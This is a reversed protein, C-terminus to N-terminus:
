PCCPISPVYCHRQSPLLSHPRSQNQIHHSMVLFDSCPFVRQSPYRVRLHWFRRKKVGYHGKGRMQRQYQWLSHGNNQEPGGRDDDRNCVSYTESKPIFIRVGLRIARLLPVKPPLWTMPHLGPDIDRLFSVGSFERARQQIHTTVVFLYDDM